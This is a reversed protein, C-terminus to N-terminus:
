VIETGPRLLGHGLLKLLLFCLSPKFMQFFIFGGTRDKLRRLVALFIYITLAPKISYQINSLSNMFAIYVAAMM